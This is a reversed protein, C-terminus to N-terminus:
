IVYGTGTYWRASELDYAVQKVAEGLYPRLRGTLQCAKARLRIEWPSWRPEQYEALIQAFERCSKEPERVSRATPHVRYGALPIPVTYLDALQWFRAWLDFDLMSLGSRLSSGAREWLSRRWFTSEQQIVLSCVSTGLAYRGSYFLKRGYGDTNIVNWPTGAPNWLLLRGTTLWEVEPCDQFIATVVELTWPLYKDDSNLWAMIEGSSQAFGHNIAQAQGQNPQHEWYALQSAYRQILDPSQDTSGDDIVIYELNPAQQDLVSRMTAELYHGYNYNPTVVSILPLPLTM